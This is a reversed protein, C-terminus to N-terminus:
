DLKVVLKGKEDTVKVKSYKPKIIANHLGINTYEVAGCLALVNVDISVYPSNTRIGHYRLGSSISTINHPPERKEAIIELLLRLSKQEDHCFVVDEHLKGKYYLTVGGGFFDEVKM